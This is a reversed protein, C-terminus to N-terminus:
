IILFFCLKLVKKSSSASYQSFSVQVTFHYPLYLFYAMMQTFLWQCHGGGRHPQSHRSWTGSKLQQLCGVALQWLCLTQPITFALQSFGGWCLDWKLTTSPTPGLVLENSVMLGLSPSYTPRCCLSFRGADGWVGVLPYM